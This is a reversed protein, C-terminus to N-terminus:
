HAHLVGQLVGSVDNVLNLCSCFREHGLHLSPVLLVNKALNPFLSPLATTKNLCVSM